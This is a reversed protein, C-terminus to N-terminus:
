IRRAYVLIATNAEPGPLSPQSDSQGTAMHGVEPWEAKRLMPSKRRQSTLFINGVRCPPQEYASLVHYPTLHQEGRRGYRPISTLSPPHNSTSNTMLLTQPLALQGVKSSISNRM